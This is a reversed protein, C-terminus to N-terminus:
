EFPRTALILSQLDAISRELRVLREEIAALKALVAAEGGAPAVPLPTSVCAKNAVAAPTEELLAALAVVDQPSLERQDKWIEEVQARELRLAAAVDDRTRGAATLKTDFWEQDFFLAM